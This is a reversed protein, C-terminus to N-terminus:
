YNTTDIQPRYNNVYRKYELQDKGFNLLLAREYNTAKLYNLIQSEEKGSLENLAKLEVIINQYCVFDAIYFSKLEHGRYFVPINVERRFPIKREQFEWELADQYVKELFGRGLESHVQMAAGIIEYTEPDRKNM